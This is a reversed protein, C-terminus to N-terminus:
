CPHMHRAVSALVGLADLLLGPVLCGILHTLRACATTDATDPWHVVSVPPGRVVAGGLVALVAAYRLSWWSSGGVLVPGARFRVLFQVCAHLSLGFAVSPHGVAACALMLLLCQLCAFTVTGIGQARKSSPVLLTPAGLIVLAALTVSWPWLLDLPAVDADPGTCEPFTRGARCTGNPKGPGLGGALTCAFVM